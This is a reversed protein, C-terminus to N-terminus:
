MGAYHHGRVAFGGFSNPHNFWQRPDHGRFGARDVKAMEYFPEGTCHLPIVYDIGMVMGYRRQTRPTRM